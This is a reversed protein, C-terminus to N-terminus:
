VGSVIKLGPGWLLFLNWLQGTGANRCSKCRSSSSPRPILLKHYSVTLISSDPELVRECEPTVGKVLSCPHEVVLKTFSALKICARFSPNKLNQSKKFFLQRESKLVLVECAWLLESKVMRYGQKELTDGWPNVNIPASVPMSSSQSRLCTERGGFFRSFLIHTKECPLMSCNALTRM